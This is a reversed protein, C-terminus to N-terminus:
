LLYNQSMSYEYNKSIPISSIEHTKSFSGLLKWWLLLIIFWKLNGKATHIIEKVFIFYLCRCICIHLGLTSSAIQGESDDRLIFVICSFPTLSLFLTYLEYRMSIRINGMEVDGSIWHSEHFRAPKTSGLHWVLAFYFRRLWKHIISWAKLSQFREKM